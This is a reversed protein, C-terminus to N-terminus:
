KGERKWLFDPTLIYHAIFSFKFNHLVLHKTLAKQEYKDLCASYKQKEAHHALQPGRVVHRRRWNVPLRRHVAVAGVGRVALLASPCRRGAGVADTPRSVGGAYVVVAGVDVDGAGGVLCRGFKPLM